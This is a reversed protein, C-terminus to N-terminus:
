ETPLFCSGGIFERVISNLPVDDCPVPTFYSLFRRLRHAMAYEREEASVMGLIPMAFGKLVALEYVLASNFMMDASEQFPFIHREEGRKISPWRRITETASYGRNNYDRVIRRLMRVYTTPIWNHNDLNLQTLASIYIKFKRGKPISSTLQDNLGHIGELILLDQPGLKLMRGSNKRKGEIFDYAPLEIEEGQILSILHENFLDREIAELCEFDYEGNEDLPTLERDVFYDDLSIPVPNIGHIRLQVGLRQAFTTKGSSSPGAILVIRILDINEAISDAIQSIRKEHFAEAVRVLSGVQDERLMKNLDILNRVKLVDGWKVSEYYINALKGQEVYEPLVLPEEKKPFELIFGPMYYRLRFVKLYGTSPVMNGYTIDHFWCCTHVWVNDHRRYRLLELKETQKSETLLEKVQEKDVQRVDIPEDAQVIEWMRKEIAQIDSLRIFSHYDIDGYVGNGLTHEMKVKCGPLVESAARVVLMVLSRTYIRMGDQSELDVFEIDYDGDIAGQLGMLLNDAYAAVVPSRRNARDYPLLDLFTTGRPVDLKGYGAIHIKYTDMPAAQTNQQAM